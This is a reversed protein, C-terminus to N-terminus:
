LDGEDDSKASRRIDKWYPANCHISALYGLSKEMGPFMAHQNIMTDAYFRLPLIGGPIPSRTLLYQVDYILNQGIKPIPSFLIKKTNIWSRAETEVDPWYHSLTKAAKDRLLFPIWIAETTSSAIGIESIWTSFETEIDVSLIDAHRGLEHWWSLIDDPTEPIYATRTPSLFSAHKMERSAKTLNAHLIPLWEKRGHLIAAPHYTPLAKAGSATLHVAGKIRGIAKNKLIAWSATAGLLLILNPRAAEIEAHLRDLEHRYEELVYKSPALAPYDLMVDGNRPGMLKTLDNSDKGPRRQFVNTLLIGQAEAAEWEAEMGVPGPYYSPAPPLIHVSGLLRRLLFGAKGVFASPRGRRKAREEEEYGWAEGVILLSSTM